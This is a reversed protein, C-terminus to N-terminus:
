VQAPQEGFWAPMEPYGAGAELTWAGDKPEFGASEFLGAAPGNRPTPVFRGIYRGAPERDIVQRLMALEVGFGMARCSMIVSDFVLADPQREIVALAVVGMSGFRDALTAVYLAHTDSAALARLDAASRRNTTTNFQNTRQTLELLRETDGPEARRFGLRLDLSRMMAAYDHVGTMARRREAAQRYLETRRRAEDTRKTSPFSLWRELAVWTAPRTSDLARTGPVQETVLAREAPNDDLLVFANPALDLEAVAQSVGEPKPLWSIKHLVFDDPALAMESWRISEPSNKSLAVLLIGAEKLRRLLRQGALDHRVPGDAMVGSWLTNDFDVLLVKARALMRVDRVVDLYAGALVRGFHSTHAAGNPVDAADFVSRGAKRHGGAGAVLAVEDMVLTNDRSQALDQIKTAILATVRREARSLPPLLPIQRRLRAIPLGGANHILIPADTLDRIQDIAEGILDVLGAVRADLTASSLRFADRMLAVYPPIGEFSFLSLGILDPARRRISALVDDISFAGQKASFFVHDVDLDLGEDRAQQLAFARTEVFLCDGALLLRFDARDPKTLVAHLDHFADRVLDPSLDAASFTDAFAQAELGLQRELLDARGPGDLNAPLCRTREDLYVAQHTKSGRIAGIFLRALPALYRAKFFADDRGGEAAGTPGNEGLGLWLDVLKAPNAEVRDAIIAAVDNM